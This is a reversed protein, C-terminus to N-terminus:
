SVVPSALQIIPQPTDLDLPRMPETLAPAPVKAPANIKRPTRAAVRKMRPFAGPAILQVRTNLQPALGPAVTFHATLLAIAFAGHIAVSVILSRASRGSEPLSRDFMIHRGAM